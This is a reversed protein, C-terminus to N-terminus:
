KIQFAVDHCSDPFVLVQNSTNFGTFLRQMRAQLASGGIDPFTARRLTGQNIQIAGIDAAGGQTGQRAARLVMAVKARQAGMKASGAGCRTSRMGALMVVAGPTLLGALPTCGLAVLMRGLAM